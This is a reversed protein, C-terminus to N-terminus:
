IVTGTKEYQRKLEPLAALINKLEERKPFKTKFDDSAYLEIFKFDGLILAAMCMMIGDLKEYFSGPDGRNGMGKDMWKYTTPLNRLLNEETSLDFYNKLIGIGDALMRRFYDKAQAQVIFAEPWTPRVGTPDVLSTKKPYINSVSSPTHSYYDSSELRFNIGLTWRDMGALQKFLKAAKKNEIMAWPSVSCSPTANFTLGPDVILDTHM